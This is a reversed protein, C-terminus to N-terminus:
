YRDGATISVPPEEGKRIAEKEMRRFKRKAQKTKQKVSPLHQICKDWPERCLKYPSPM